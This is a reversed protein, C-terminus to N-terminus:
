PVGRVREGELKASLVARESVGYEGRLIRPLVSTIEGARISTLFGLSGLNIGLLPIKSGMTAQAAHLM